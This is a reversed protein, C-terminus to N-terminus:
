PVITTVPLGPSNALRRDATVLAAKLHSAVVVYLADAITLNHRLTWAEVLLPKV